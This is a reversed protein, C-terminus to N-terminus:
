CEGMKGKHLQNWLAGSGATVVVEGPLVGAIVETSQEDRAGPRVTRAHFVKPAGPASYNKDRVFVLHREGDWQVAENPVVVAKQGERVIVPAPGLTHARLRGEPHALRARARVTRTKEDVATSVWSLAGTVEGGGDPRFVVKNGLALRPAEGQPVHLTLWLTRPD